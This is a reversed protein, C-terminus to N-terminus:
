KSGYRYDCFFDILEYSNYNIGKMWRSLTEYQQYDKNYIGKNAESDDMFRFWHWGVCHSSELLGLTFHQYWCARDLDSQVLWGAGDSNPLGSDAAKVYFETIMFPADVEEWSNYVFSSVGQASYSGQNAVSWCGYYNISIIDCSKAAAEIVDHIQKPTGHLRTGLYLIKYGHYDLAARIGSYYKDAAVGAFAERLSSSLFSSNNESMFAKAAVYAANDTDKLALFKDLIYLSAGNWKLENDSFFGLVSADNEYVEIVDKVQQICYAEWDGFFPIGAEYDDDTGDGGDPYKGNLGSLESNRFGSLFGMSPAITLPKDPNSANFTQLESYTSFAGTANIGLDELQDRLDGIWNQLSGWKSTATESANSDNISTVGRQFHRYGYPDIIWWRGNEDKQTRFRGTAEYQPGKLDSGYQNVRAKYSSPSYDPSFDPMYPLIRTDTHITSPTAYATTSSNGYVSIPYYSVDFSSPEFITLTSTNSEPVDDFVLADGYNYPDNAYLVAVEEEITYWGQTSGDYDVELLKSITNVTITFDYRYGSEFTYDTDVDWSYVEDNYLVDLAIDGIVIDQPPVIVAFQSDNFYPTIIANDGTLTYTNDEPNITVSNKLNLKVSIDSPVVGKISFVINSMKRYFNLEPETSSTPEVEAVMLSSNKYESYNSQDTNASFTFNEETGYDSSPSIAFYSVDENEVIYIPSASSFVSSSYSYTANSEPENDSNYSQVFIEDGEDFMNETVRTQIVSTFSIQVTPEPEPTEVIEDVENCSISFAVFSLMLALNSYIQKM